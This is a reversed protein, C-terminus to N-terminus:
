KRQLRKWLTTNMSADKSLRFPTKEQIESFKCPKITPKYKRYADYDSIRGGGINVTGIFDNEVMAAIAKVLEDVPLISTYSDKAYTDYKINEPDLFRTRIICFNKLVNVASEAGLKTWGYFNYPRAADNESYNGKTSEYIGDTSIHVLKIEKRKETAAKVLNATGIVNVLVAKEPEKECEAVRAMAACHIISDFDNKSFFKEVAAASTINMEKSSPALIDKFLGSNLIHRGLTGSGGTLLIKTHKM